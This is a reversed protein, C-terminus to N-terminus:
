PTGTVITPHQATLPHLLIRAVCQCICKDKLGTSIYNILHYQMTPGLQRAYACTMTLLVTANALSEQSSLLYNRTPPNTPISSSSASSSSSSSSSHSSGIASATATSSAGSSSSGSVSASASSSGSSSSGGDGATNGSSSGNGQGGGKQELEWRAYHDYSRKMIDRIKELSAGLQRQNIENNNNSPPYIQQHSGPTPPPLVPSPLADPLYHLPLFFLTLLYPYSSIYFVLYTNSIYFLFSVLATSPESFSQTTTNTSGQALGQGQANKTELAAMQDLLGKQSRFFQLKQATTKM